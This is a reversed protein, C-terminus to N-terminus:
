SIKQEVQWDALSSDLEFYNQFLYDIGKFNSETIVTYDMQNKIFKFVLSRLFNLELKHFGEAMM